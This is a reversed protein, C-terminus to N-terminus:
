DLPWGDRKLCNRCRRIAGRWDAIGLCEERYDLVQQSVGGAVIAGDVLVMGHTGLMLYTLHGGHAFVTGDHTDITVSM